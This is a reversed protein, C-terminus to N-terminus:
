WVACALRNERAYGAVKEYLLSENVFSPIGNREYDFTVVSSEEGSELLESAPIPLFVIGRSVYRVVQVSLGSISGIFFDAALMDHVAQITDSAIHQVIRITNGRAARRRLAHAFLHEWHGPATKQGLHNVYVRNMTNVDHNDKLKTKKHQPIGESYVHVVVPTKTTHLVEDLALIIRWAMDVYTDDPILIRTTYNFFDGRRVHMAIHIEETNLTLERSAAPPETIKYQIAHHTSNDGSHKQWYKDHFWSRTKSFNTYLYDRFCLKPRTIFLTNPEPFASIFRRMLGFCQGDVDIEEQLGSSKRLYCETVEHPIYVAKRFSSLGRRLKSCVHSTRPIECEDEEESIAACSDRLINDRVLEDKGWGFLGEVVATNNRPSLSGYTSIRHSYSVNLELALHLEYNILCTRHGLGDGVEHPIHSLLLRNGSEELTYPKKGLGIARGSIDFRRLYRERARASCVRGWGGTTASYNRLRTYTRVDERARPARKLPYSRGM